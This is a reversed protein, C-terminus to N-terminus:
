YELPRGICANPWPLHLLTCLTPVIDTVFANSVTKKPVGGGIIYVPLTVGQRSSVGIPENHEDVEIWGPLLTFVVDGCSNKFASNHIKSLEDIGCVPACKIEASTYANQVGQFETMFRAVHEELQRRDIKQKDIFPKNLYINRSAYGSVYRGQGYVAMLYSNLLAMARKANFLGNQVQAKSLRHLSDNEQTSGVFVLLTNELGVSLDVADIFLRLDKDLRLYIDEKEASLFANGQENPLKVSFEVALFDLRSDLGLKGDRLARIALDKMLTNVFPSRKFRYVQEALTQSDDPKSFLQKDTSLPANRYTGIDYLPRWEYLLYNDITRSQNVKAAWLPLGEDYFDTTALRGTEDDLWVAGDATHAGFALAHAADLAVVYSRCGNDSLKAVDALTTAAMQRPSLNLTSNIGHYRGDYFVPVMDDELVDYRLKGTIGHYLPVSGTMLSAYDAASAATAYNCYATPIAMGETLRRLGGKDFKNALTTLHEPQLGNIAVVVVLRPRDQAPLSVAVALLLLLPLVKEICRM